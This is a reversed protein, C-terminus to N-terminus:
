RMPTTTICMPAARMKMRESKKNLNKKSMKTTYNRCFDGFVNAIGNRSTITEGKENKIKTILVRKKASKIGPINKAGKSDELIRQIDQPRKM